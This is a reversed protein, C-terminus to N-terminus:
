VMKTAVMMREFDPLNMSKDPSSSFADLMEIIEEATLKEKLLQAVRAIDKIMIRQTDVADDEVDPFFLRFAMRAGEKQRPTIAKPKADEEEDSSEQAKTIRSRRSKKTSMHYDDDDPEPESGVIDRPPSSASTSPGADGGASGEEDGDQELLVACVSRWDKKSVGEESAGHEAGWGSAANSFVALVEEDDAPLDLIQLASPILSLPLHSPTVDGSDSDPTADEDDDDVIFGGPADDEVIFGGPAPEDVIFGGGTDEPIFGGPEIDQTIKRRKRAPKDDALSTLTTDYASDIRRQLSRPLATFAPDHESANPM